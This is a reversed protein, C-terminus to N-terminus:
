CPKKGEEYIPIDVDDIKLIMNERCSEPIFDTALTLSTPLKKHIMKFTLISDTLFDFLEKEEKESKKHLM